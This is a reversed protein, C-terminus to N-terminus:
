EDEDSDEDDSVDEVFMPRHNPNRELPPLGDDEEDEGEEEEGVGEEKGQGDGRTTRQRPEEPGERASGQSSRLAQGEEGLSSHEAVQEQSQESPASTSAVAREKVVAEAFAEPTQWWLVAQHTPHPLCPTKLRRSLQRESERRGEGGGRSCERREQAVAHPPVQSAAHVAHGHGQRGRARHPQQRPSGRRASDARGRECECAGGARGGECAEASEDHRHPPSPL